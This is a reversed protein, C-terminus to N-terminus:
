RAERPCLELGTKEAALVNMARQGAGFVPQVLGQVGAPFGEDEEQHQGSPDM